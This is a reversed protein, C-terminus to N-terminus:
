TYRDNVVDGDRGRKVVQHTGQYIPGDSYLGYSYLGYGYQAM